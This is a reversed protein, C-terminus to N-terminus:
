WVKFDNMNPLQSSAHAPGDLPSDEEDDEEDEANGADDYKESSESEDDFVSGISSLEDSHKIEARCTTYTTIFSIIRLSIYM